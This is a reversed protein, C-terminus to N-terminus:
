DDTGGGSGSGDSGSGSGDDSGSHEDTPSPRPGGGSGGSGDDSGDGGSDSGSHDDSPEAGGGSHDDSPEVGGGGHDDSPEATESPEPSEAPELTPAPEAPPAPTTVPATTTAPSPAVSEHPGLLGLAGAAGFTAAGVLSTGAIAVVLVYALAAARAFTPRGAGISAWAQRVSQGFGALLGRRQLPLLFGAPAPSPENALAAMVRDTFATGTRVNADAAVTELSRIAELSDDLESGETPGLEEPGFPM